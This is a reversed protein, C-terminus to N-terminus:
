RPATPDPWRPPRGGDGAEAVEGKRCARAVANALVPALLLVAASEAVIALVAATSYHRTRLGFLTQNESVFLAVLSGVAITLGVAALLAVCVDAWRGPVIRELPALLCLGVVGSGIVNLLFLIKITPIGTFDQVVYQQLHVAGTALIAVAGLRRALALM